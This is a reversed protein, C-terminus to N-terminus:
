SIIEQQIVRLTFGAATTFPLESIPGPASFDGDYASVISDVKQLGVGPQVPFDAIGTDKITLTALGDSMAIEIRARKLEVDRTEFAHSLNEILNSIARVLDGEHCFVYCAEDPVIVECEIGYKELLARMKVMNVTSRLTYRFEAILGHLPTHVTDQEDSCVIYQLGIVNEALLAVYRTREAPDSTGQIALYLDECSQLYSEIEVIRTELDEIVTLSLRKFKLSKLLERLHPINENRLSRYLESWHKRLISILHDVDSEGRTFLTLEYTLFDFKSGPGASPHLRLLVDIFQDYLSTPDPQSADALDRFFDLQDPKIVGQYRDLLEEVLKPQRQVSGSTLFHSIVTNFHSDSTHTRAILQDIGAIFIDEDFMRVISIAADLEKDSIELPRNCFRRAASLLGQRFTPYFLESLRPDAPDFAHREKALVQLFLLLDESDKQKFLTALYNRDAPDYIASELTRRLKCRKIRRNIDLSFFISRTPAKFLISIPQAKLRLIRNEIHRTLTPKDRALEEAVRLEQISFCVPCDKKDFAPIKVNTLFRIELKAKGHAKRKELLRTQYEDCRNFLVYVFIRKSGWSEVLDIMRELTTGSSAADDFIVADKLEYDQSWPYRLPNALMESTIAHRNSGFFSSSCLLRAITDAGPSKEPFFIANIKNAKDLKQYTSRIDFQIREVILSGYSEVILPTVFFYLIHKTHSEFHGAVIANSPKVVRELFEDFNDWIPVKKKSDEWIPAHSVPDVIVIDQYTCGEPLDKEFRIPHRLVSELPYNKGEIRIEDEAKGDSRADVVTLIKQLEATSLKEVLARLTSGTGIVDTLIVIRTGKELLTLNVWSSPKDPDEIFLRQYSYSLPPLIKAFEDSGGLIVILDPQLKLLEERLWRSLKQQAHEWALLKRIEFFGFFYAQSPILFWRDPNFVRNKEGAHLILEKLARKLNGTARTKIEALSFAWEFKSPVESLKILHAFRSVLLQGFNEPGDNDSETKQEIKTLLISTTAEDLGLLTLNWDSDFSALTREKSAGAAVAKQLEAYDRFRDQIANLSEASVPIILCDPEQARMLEIGLVFLTKNSLTLDQFDIIIIKRTQITLKVRQIDNLLALLLEAQADLSEPESSSAYNRLKIIEYHAPPAYLSRHEVFFHHPEAQPAHLPFCLKFQVGPLDHLKLDTKALQIEEVRRPRKQKPDTLFDYVLISRRSRVCLMARFERCTEKVWYLGTAPIADLHNSNQLVELLKKLREEPTKRTSYQIFAYEIVDSNSPRVTKNEIREDTLYADQLTDFIGPGLDTVVVELYEDGDLKQFFSHEWPAATLKAVRTRNMVLLGSDGQAHEFINDGLEQLVVDRIKGSRVIGYDYSDKFFLSFQETVRLTRLFSKLDKWKGLQLFPSVVAHIPKAQRHVLFSDVTNHPIRFEDLVELFRLQVLFSLAKSRPSDENGNPGASKSESANPAPLLAFLSSGRRLLTKMWLLLLGLAYPDYWIVSQFDFELPESNGSRQSSYFRKLIREFAAGSFVKELVISQTSKPM